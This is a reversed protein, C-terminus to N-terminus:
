MFADQNFIKGSATQRNHFQHGYWSATGTMMSGSELSHRSRKYHRASSRTKVVQDKGAVKAIATVGISILSGIWFFVTALAVRLFTQIRRRVIREATIVEKPFDRLVETVIGRSIGMTKKHSHSRCGYAGIIFFTENIKGFI